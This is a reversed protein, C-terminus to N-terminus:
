PEACVGSAVAVDRIPNVDGACASLAFLAGAIGLRTFDGLLRTLMM